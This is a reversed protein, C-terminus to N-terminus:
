FFFSILRKLNFKNKIKYQGFIINEVLVNTSKIIHLYGIKLINKMLMLHMMGLIMIGMNM